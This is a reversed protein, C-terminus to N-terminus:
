DRLVGSAIMNDIMKKAERISKCETSILFSGKETDFLYPVTKRVNRGDSLRVTHRCICCGRYITYTERKHWPSREFFKPEIRQMDVLSMQEDLQYVSEYIKISILTTQM